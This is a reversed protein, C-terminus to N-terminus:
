RSGKKFNIKNCGAHKQSVSLEDKEFTYNLTAVLFNGLIAWFHQYFEKTIGDNGPSKNSKIASLAEWCEKVALKGECLQNEVEILRPTNISQLFTLCHAIGSFIWM